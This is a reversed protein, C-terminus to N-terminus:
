ELFLATHYKWWQFMLIHLSLEISMVAGANFINWKVCQLVFLEREPIAATM